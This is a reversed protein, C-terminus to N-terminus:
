TLSSFPRRLAIVSQAFFSLRDRMPGGRLQPMRIIM